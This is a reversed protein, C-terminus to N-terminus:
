SSSISAVAPQGAVGRETRLDLVHEVGCRPCTTRVVGEIHWYRDRVKINIRGNEEFTALLVAPEQCRCEWRQVSAGHIPSGRSRISSM